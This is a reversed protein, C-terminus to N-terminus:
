RYGVTFEVTRSQQSRSDSAVVRLSLNNGNASLHMPISFAGNADAVGTARQRQTGIGIVGPIISQQLHAVVEVQAYPTTTGTVAFDHSVKEGTAPSTVSVYLQERSRDRDHDAPRHVTESPPPATETPGGTPTPPGAAPPAALVVDLASSVRQGDRSLFVKVKVTDPSGSALVFSGEYHGPDVEAMGVREPGGAVDFTGTCKATGVMRVWVTDGVHFGGNEADATFVDDIAPAEGQYDPDSQAGTQQACVPSSFLLAAALVALVVSLLSRVM